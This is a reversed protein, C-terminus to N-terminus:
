PVGRTVLEVAMQSLESEEKSEEEGKKTGM